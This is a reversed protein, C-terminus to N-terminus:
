KQIYGILYLYVEPCPKLHNVVVLLKSRFFFAEQM